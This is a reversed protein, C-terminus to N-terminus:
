QTLRSMTITIFQGIRGPRVGSTHHLDPNGHRASLTQRLGLERGRGACTPAPCTTSFLLSTRRVRHKAATVFLGDLREIAITMAPV